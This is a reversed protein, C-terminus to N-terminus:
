RGQTNKLVKIYSRAYKGKKILEFGSCEPTERNSEVVIIKAKSLHSFLEEWEQFDYPPDLFALDFLFDSVPCTRLFNLADQHVLDTKPGYRLKEINESVIKLVEKSSDVFVAYEAGRSLAELGMAGSGAFLDLVKHGRPSAEIQYLSNFVAERLRQTAPRSESPM